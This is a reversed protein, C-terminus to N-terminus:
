AAAELVPPHVLIDLVRDLKTLEMMIRVSPSVACVSVQKGHKQALHCASVLAMLGASDISEVQAMDVLLSKCHKSAIAAALEQNFQSANASSLSGSPQVVAMSYNMTLNRM